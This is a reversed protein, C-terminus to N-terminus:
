KLSCHICGCESRLTFEHTRAVGIGNRQRLTPPAAHGTAHGKRGRAADATHASVLALVVFIRMRITFRQAVVFRSRSACQLMEAKARLLLFMLRMVVAERANAAAAVAVGAAALPFSAVDFSFFFFFLLLLLLIADFACITRGAGRRRQSTAATRCRTREVNGALCRVSGASCCSAHRKRLVCMGVRMPLM